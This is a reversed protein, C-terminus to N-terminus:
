FYFLFVSYRGTLVGNVKKPPSWYVYVSRDLIDKFRFAEVADPVDELTKVNQHASRPGDGPNTFCLVSINYDTFKELDKLMATHESNMGLVNPDVMMSKMLKPINDKGIKWAQM